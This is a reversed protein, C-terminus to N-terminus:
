LLVPIIIIFTSGKNPESRAIITGGHNETIRRCIALGIGTGEYESRSHLRQFITFIKETFQRDFGIGNDNFDIELYRNAKALNYSKVEAPNLFKHTIDIHPRV